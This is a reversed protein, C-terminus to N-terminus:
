IPQASTIQEVGQRRNVFGPSAEAGKAIGPCVAGRWKAAKRLKLPMQYQGPSGFAPLSRLNSAHLETPLRGKRLMLPLLGQRSPLSALRQRIDGPGVCNAM